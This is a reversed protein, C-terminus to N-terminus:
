HGGFFELLVETFREPAEMNVMHAVGPIDIRRADPITAELYDVVEHIEPMDLTGLLVLTPAHIESVRGMAPPDLQSALRSRGWRERSGSLMELVKRRVGPDVDGPERHPGDCWYRTFIEITAPFDERTIADTIEEMYRVVEPSGYPFGGLGPGVLVLSEVRGPHLLAFDLAIQGGLSLGVIRARPIRLTDLLALLDQPDSFPGEQAHSRGHSRIDYRVVRYSGALAEVQGDWMRHDLYGGHILIVPPGEGTERYYLRGGEVPVYGEREQADFGSSGGGRALRDPALPKEPGPSSGLMGLCLISMLILFLKKPMRVVNM